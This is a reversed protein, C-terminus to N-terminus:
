IPTKDLRLGSLGEFTGEEVAKLNDLSTRIHHHMMASSRSVIYGVDEKMWGEFYDKIIGMFVYMYFNLMFQRDKDSIVVGKDGACEEIGRKVLEEGYRSIMLLLDDRRSSFYLHLCVSRRESLFGMIALFGGVWNHYDDKGIVREGFESRYSDEVADMLCYYHNYLTQKSLGSESCFLKLTLDDASYTELLRMLEEKIKKKTTM